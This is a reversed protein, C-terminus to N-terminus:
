LSQNKFNGEGGGGGVCVGPALIPTLHGMWTSSKHENVKKSFACYAITVRKFVRKGSGVAGKFEEM